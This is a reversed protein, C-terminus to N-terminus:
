GNTISSVPIRSSPPLWIKKQLLFDINVLPFLQYTNSLDTSTIIRAALADLIEM